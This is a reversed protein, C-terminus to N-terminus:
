TYAFKNCINRFLPDDQPEVAPADTDVLPVPSVLRDEDVPPLLRDEDVPPLLDVDDESFTDGGDGVYDYSEEVDLQAHGRPSLMVAKSTKVYLKEREEIFYQKVADCASMDYENTKSALKAHDINLALIPARDDDNWSSAM